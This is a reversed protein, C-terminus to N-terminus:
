VKINVIKKILLSGSVVMLTALCLVVRGGDTGFLPSMYSPNLLSIMAALFVPLLSLIWRAMRGQATLTKVLRRLDFRDRITDVVTDLVEAMNGGAERQLEALLAVQELDSSAMRRAVERLSEDIPVGLQEDAVVRQFERRAPEAADRAVVAFAGTFTHGARLASALVQLNDPLQELFSTRVSALKRKFFARVGLPVAAAALFLPLWVLSFVIAAIVTGAATAVVIQAPVVRIDAIELEERFTAWWQTRSLSSETGSVLRGSLLPRPQDPEVAGLSLYPRLRGVLATPTRRLLLIIALALLGMTTLAVLLASVASGLFREGFTRHYPGLGRALGANYSLRGSGLMGADITVVVHSQAPLTSRYALLYERALKAGLAGFIATLDRPSRAETYSARTDRALMRLTQPSFDDSRLGVTFIRVHDHRADATAQEARVRSGTDTGDSLLVISGSTVDAQRLLQIAEAVADHIHTGRRLAPPRHLANRLAAPGFTPELLVHVGRNFAIAGVLARSSAHRAFAGAADLAARYPRGRMSNSADIVLVVGTSTAAEDAPMLRLDDVPRDNERVVIKSADLRAGQPLDLLYGRDPFQLRGVPTLRIEGAAAAASCVVAAVVALLSCALLRRM